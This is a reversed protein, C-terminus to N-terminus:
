SDRAPEESAEAAMVSVPLEEECHLFTKAGDPGTFWSTCNDHRSCEHADLRACSGTHIPGSPATAWCAFFRGGAYGARCGDTALCGAETVALCTGVCDAYDLKEIDGVVCQHGETDCYTCGDQNSVEICAGSRPDIVFDM